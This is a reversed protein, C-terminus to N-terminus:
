LSYSLGLTFNRGMNVIGDSKLRSLHNVYVKNTINNGSLSISLDNRFLEITAGLGASLLSYGNTSTEFESVNNQDLKTQYTIFAYGDTFQKTNYEVRITNRITNAPILPLYNDNEQKGTVTEFSSEIHM